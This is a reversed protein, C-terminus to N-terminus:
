FYSLCWGFTSRSFIEDDAFAGVDPLAVLGAWPEVSRSAPAELDRLSRYTSLSSLTLLVLLLHCRDLKCIYDIIYIYIITVLFLYTM